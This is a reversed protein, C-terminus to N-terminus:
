RAGKEEENEVGAMLVKELEKIDRIKAEKVYEQVSAVGGGNNRRAGGKGLNANRQEAARPSIFVSKKLFADGNGPSDFGQM